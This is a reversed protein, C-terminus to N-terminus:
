TTPRFSVKFVEVSYYRTCKIHSNEEYNPAKHAPSSDSPSQVFITKSCINKGLSCFFCDGHMNSKYNVPIFIYDCIYSGCRPM